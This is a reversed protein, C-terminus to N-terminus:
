TIIDGCSTKCFVCRVIAGRVENEGLISPRDERSSLLLAVCLSPLCLPNSSDTYNSIDAPTPECVLVPAHQFSFSQWIYHTELAAELYQM